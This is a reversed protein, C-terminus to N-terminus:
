KVNYVLISGGIIADPKRSRLWDYDPEGLTLHYWRSNQLYTASVAIWGKTPGFRSTWRQYKEKLYYEPEGGGFYDVKLTAIKNEDVWKTLRKLDQGWDLNSDTLIKYGNNIGGGAENFYALYSPYALMYSGVIWLSLACIFAIRPWKNKSWIIIELAVLIYIMPIIPILHRIGINLNGRFTVLLYLLIFTLISFLFLNKEFYNWFNKVLIQFIKKFGKKILGALYFANKWFGLVLALLLLVLFGLTEKTVFAVPFYWFFSQNTVEGLLFTTNGGQVRSFVMSFGLLYESFYKLLPIEALFLIFSKPIIGPQTWDILEKLKESPMKFMALAYTADILIFCVLLSLIFGPTYLSFSKKFNDWTSHFKSKPSFIKLTLLFLFLPFLLIASFKSLQALGLFIGSFIANKLNPKKLYNLFFFIALFIFFAVGIDTTVYHNHGTLTPSFSFLFLSFLAITKGCYHKTVFFLCVGFLLFLLLLPLRSWFLIQDPNNGIRYIFSWGTEWQGNPLDKWDPLNKDFKLNLSILPLGAIMKLLPPHEPNLRYDHFKLYTYGAPIHAVEDVVGSDGRMTAFSFLFNIILFTFVLFYVLKKKM